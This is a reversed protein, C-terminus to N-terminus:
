LRRGQQEPALFDIGSFLCKEHWFGILAACFYPSTARASQMRTRALHAGRDLAGHLRVM